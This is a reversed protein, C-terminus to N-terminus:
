RASERALGVGRQGSRDGVGRRCGGEAEHRDAGRGVRAVGEGGTAVDVHVRGAIRATLVDVAVCGPREDEVAGRQRRTPRADGADVEDMDSVSAVSMRRDGRAGLHVLGAGGDGGVGEGLHGTTSSRDVGGREGDDALGRDRVAVGGDVGRGALDVHLGLGGGGAVEGEGVGVADRADVEGRVGTSQTIAVARGPRDVVHVSGVALEHTLFHCHRDRTGVDVLRDTGGSHGRGLHTRTLGEGVVLDGAGRDDRHQVARAEAVGADLVGRVEGRDRGDGGTHLVHGTRDLGDTAVRGGTALGRGLVAGGGARTAIGLDVGTVVLGGVRVELEQKRARDM